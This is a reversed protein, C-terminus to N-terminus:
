ECKRVRKAVASRIFIRSSMPKLPASWSPSSKVRESRGAQTRLRDQPAGRRRMRRETLLRGRRKEAEIRQPKPCSLGRGACGAALRKEAYADAAPTGAGLHKYVSPYHVGCAACKFGLGDKGRHLYVIATLAHSSDPSRKKRKSRGHCEPCRCNYVTRNDFNLRSNPNPAHREWHELDLQRILNLQEPTATVGELM